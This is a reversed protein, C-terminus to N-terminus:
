VVNLDDSPQVPDGLQVSIGTSERALTQESVPDHPEDCSMLNVVHGFCEAAIFQDDASM